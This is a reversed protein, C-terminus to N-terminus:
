ESDILKEIHFDFVIEFGTQLYDKYEPFLMIEDHPEGNEYKILKMNGPENCYVIKYLIPNRNKHRKHFEYLEINAYNDIECYYSGFNEKLFKQLYGMTNEYTGIESVRKHGPSDEIKEEIDDEAENTVVFSSELIDKALNVLNSRLSNLSKIEKRGFWKGYQWDADLYIKQSEFVLEIHFEFENKGQKIRFEIRPKYHNYGYNFDSSEYIKKKVEYDITMDDIKLHKKWDFNITTDVISAALGEEQFIEDVKENIEIELKKSRVKKVTMSPKFKSLDKQDVPILEVLNSFSYGEFEELIDGDEDCFKSAIAMVNKVTTKSITFNDYAYEYIDSYDNLEYLKKENFESLLMGIETYKDFISEVNEHIRKTYRDYEGNKIMLESAETMIFEFNDNKEPGVDSKTDQVMEKKEKKMRNIFLRDPQEKFM